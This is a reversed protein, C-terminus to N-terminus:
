PIAKLSMSFPFGTNALPNWAFRLATISLFGTAAPKSTLTSPPSGSKRILPLAKSILLPSVPLSLTKTPSEVREGTSQLTGASIIIFSLFGFALCHLRKMRIQTAAYHCFTPQYSFYYLVFM